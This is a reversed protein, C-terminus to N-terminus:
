SIDTQINKIITLLLNDYSYRKIYKLRNENIKALSEIYFINFDEITKIKLSEEIDIYHVDRELLGEYSDHPCLPIGGCALIEAFKPNVIDLASKTNANFKCRNLWDVYQDGFLFAEGNQSLEIDLKLFSMNSTVNSALGTKLDGLYSKHANARFGIDIDRKINLNKFRKVNIGFPVWLINAYKKKYKELTQKCYVVLLCDKLKKAFEIREEMLKYENKSFLLSPTSKYKDLSLGHFKNKKIVKFIRDPYIDFFSHGYVVLDYSDTLEEIKTEYGPGFVTVNFKNQFAELWDQYYYGSNYTERNDTLYLVDKM